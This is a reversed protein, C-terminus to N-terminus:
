FTKKVEAMVRNDHYNLAFVDPSYANAYRYQLAVRLDESPAYEFRIGGLYIATYRDLVYDEIWGISADYIIKSTHSSAHGITGNLTHRTNLLNKSIVNRYEYRGASIGLSTRETDRNIAAVYRDERLLVSLPDDVYTLKTNFSYAYKGSRQIIGADWVVQRTEGVPEWDIWSSGITFWSTSDKAYTYTFGTFLDSKHLHNIGADTWTYRVGITTSLSSSLEYDVTAFVSYDSKDLLTPDKYWINRYGYGTTVTSNPSPRIRAYPTVILTNIDTQNLFLSEQSWDRVISHPTRDHVDQIDLLLVEDLIRTHNNLILKYLSQDVHYRAYYRFDYAYSVDWDWLPMKYIWRISPVVRTIYDGTKDATTLFLNDNYEESITIAPQLDYEAGQASAPYYTSVVALCASALLIPRISVLIQILAFPDPLM